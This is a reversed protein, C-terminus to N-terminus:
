GRNEGLSARTAPAPSVRLPLGCTTPPAWTPGCKVPPQDPHAHRILVPEIEAAQHLAIVQHGVKIPGRTPHELERIIARQFLHPDQPSEIKVVQAGHHALLLACYPGNYTQGLELVTLGALPRSSTDM